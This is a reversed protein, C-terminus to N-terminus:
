LGTSTSRHIREQPPRKVRGALAVAAFVGLCAGCGPASASPATDLGAVDGAQLQEEQSALITGDPKQVKTILMVAGAPIGSGLDAICMAEQGPGLTEGSCPMEARALVEGGAGHLTVTNVLGSLHNSGTNQFLTVVQIGGMTNNSSFAIGTIEGAETTAGPEAALSSAPAVALVLAALVLLLGAAKKKLPSRKLIM